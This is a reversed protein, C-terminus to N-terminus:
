VDGFTSFHGRANTEKVKKVTQYKKVRQTQNLTESSEKSQNHECAQTDLSELEEM